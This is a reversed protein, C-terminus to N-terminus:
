PPAQPLLGLRRIPGVRFVDLAWPRDRDGAGFFFAFRMSFIEHKTAPADLNAGTSWAELLNM